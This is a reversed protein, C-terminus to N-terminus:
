DCSSLVLVPVDRSQRMSGALTLASRRVALSQRVLTGSGTAGIYAVAAVRVQASSHGHNWIICMSPRYGLSNSSKDLSPWPTPDHVDCFCRLGLLVAGSMSATSDCHQLIEMPEKSRRLRVLVLIDKSM